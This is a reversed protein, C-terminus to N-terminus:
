GTAVGESEETPDPAEYSDGGAGHAPDDARDGMTACVAAIREKLIEATFPKLIYGNVGLKLAEVVDTRSGNGTVIVIPVDRTKDDERLMRVFELGNMEPMYWDTIVFDIPETELRKLADRANTALVVDTYGLRSLVNAIIRRMPMSDDIILFRM